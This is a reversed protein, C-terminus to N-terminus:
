KITKAFAPPWEFSACANIHREGDQSAQPDVTVNTYPYEEIFRSSFVTEGDQKIQGMLSLFGNEKKIM